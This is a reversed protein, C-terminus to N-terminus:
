GVGCAIKEVKSGHCLDSHCHHWPCQNSLARIVLIIGAERGWAPQVSSGPQSDQLVPTLTAPSLEFARLPSHSNRSDSVQSAPTPLGIGVATPHESVHGWYKGMGRKCCPIIVLPLIDPYQTCSGWGSLLTLRPRLM